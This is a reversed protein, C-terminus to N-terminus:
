KLTDVVMKKADLYRMENVSETSWGTISSSVMRMKIRRKCPKCTADKLRADAENKCCRRRLFSRLEKSSTSLIFSIGRAPNVKILVFGADDSSLM